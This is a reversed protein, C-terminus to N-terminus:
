EPAPGTTSRPIVSVPLEVWDGAAREDSSLADILWQAAQRGSEFLAQDVTTLGVHLSTDINDFGVVSLQEPVRLDRSRAAELVGLAIKDSSAFIATPRDRGDLLQSTLERANSQGAPGNAVIGAGPQLGAEEMAREYGVQRMAAPSYDFPAAESDGIFLISQHGLDLLHRAALYGGKENDVYFSQIGEAQGDVIAAPVSSSVFRSREEETLPLSVLLFGAAMDRRPMSGIREDRQSKSEISYLVIDWESDNLVSVVGRLREVFSPETFFPVALGISNTTGRSLGRALRSPRYDLEEIAALVRQRTADSVRPSNNLVRSVTSVGVGARQAVDFITAVAM